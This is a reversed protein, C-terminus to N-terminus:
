ADLVTGFGSTSVTLAGVDVLRSEEALGEANPWDIVKVAVTVPGFPTPM